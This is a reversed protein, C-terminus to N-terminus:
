SSHDTNQDHLPKAFAVVAQEIAEDVRNKVNAKRRTKDILSDIVGMDVLKQYRYFTDRSVSM